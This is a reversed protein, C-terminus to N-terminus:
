IMPPKKCLALAVRVVRMAPPKNTEPIVNKPVRFVGYWFCPRARVILPNRSTQPFGNQM